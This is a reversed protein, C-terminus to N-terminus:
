SCGVITAVVFQLPEPVHHSYTRLDAFLARLMRREDQSPCRSERNIRHALELFPCRCGHFGCDTCRSRRAPRITPRYCRRGTADRTPTLVPERTAEFAQLGRGANLDKRVVARCYACLLGDAAPRRRCRHCLKRM